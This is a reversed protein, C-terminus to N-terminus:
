VKPLLQFNNTEEHIACFLIYDAILEFNVSVHGSGSFMNLSLFAWTLSLIILKFKGIGEVFYKKRYGIIGVRLSIGRQDILAVHFLSVYIVTVHTATRVFVFKNFQRSSPIFYLRIAPMAQRREATRWSWPVELAGEEKKVVGHIGKGDSDREGARQNTRWWWGVYITGPSRPLTEGYRSSFPLNLFFPFDKRAQWDATRPKAAMRNIIIWQEIKDPDHPQCSRTTWGGSWGRDFYYVRITATSGTPEHSQFRGLSRSYIKKSRYCREDIRWTSLLARQTAPNKIRWQIGVFKDRLNKSDGHTQTTRITDVLPPSVFFLFIYILLIRASIKSCNTIHLSFVVSDLKTKHFITTTCHFSRTPKVSSLYCIEFDLFCFLFTIEPPDLLFTKFLINSGCM